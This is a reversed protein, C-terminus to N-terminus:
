AVTLMVKGVHSPGELYAHAEAARALPFAKDIVPFVTRREILPWVAAQMDALLAAKFATSRNRLTSGTHTLRKRMLLMVDTEASAGGTSAITVIRGDEAAAQYNRKVYAGGVLDLIVDAGKGGTAERVRAVFDETAYNIAVDAGLKRCAACREDSGATAIVTAGFAKGLQIATTGIGSAGGHILAVEGAVLRGRQFLNSWVTAFAEPLAAAELLSLGAPVPLANSEHITCYEAYGGGPLLATVPDGIKYRRANAGVAAVTGSAEMGIIDSAGPPPPYFGRRQLVDARNLGAAAVRILIEEPGPHPLPRTAPVLAEPGGPTTVVIATMSDPLTM